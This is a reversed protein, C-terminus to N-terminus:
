RKSRVSTGVVIEMVLENPCVVLWEKAVQVHQAPGPHHIRCSFNHSVFRLSLCLLNLLLCLLRTSGSPSYHQNSHNQGIANRNRSLDKSLNQRKHGIHQKCKRFRTETTCNVRERVKTQRAASVSAPKLRTVSESATSSGEPTNERMRRVHALTETHSKGDCQM